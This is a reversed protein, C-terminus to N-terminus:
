AVVLGNFVFFIALLAKLSPPLSLKLSTLTKWCSPDIFWEGLDIYAYIGSREKQTFGFIENSLLGDSTPAGSPSFFTPNTIEQLENQKIYLPIDM